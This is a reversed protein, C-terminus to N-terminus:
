RTGANRVPWVYHAYYKEDPSNYGTATDVFWGRSPSLTYSTSTWFQQVWVQLFPHGEPLAPSFRGFDLLTQMENISPLRWDGPQSGDTLDGDGSALASVAALADNFVYQGVGYADKLWILGTLNDTVTGDGNDAFRPDVSAGLQLAGDQSTGGCAIGAGNASYCTTQGTKQVTAPARDGNASNGCPYHRLDVAARADSRENRVPWLAYSWYMKGGWSAGGDHFRVSWATSPQYLWSSSTWYEQDQSYDKLQVNTFPHGAPLAPDSRGFDMLSQLERVNPM